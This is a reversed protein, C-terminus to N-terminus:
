DEQEKQKRMADVLETYKNLAKDIDTKSIKIKRTFYADYMALTLGVWFSPSLRTRERIASLQKSLAYNKGSAIAPHTPIERCVDDVFSLVGTSTDVPRDLYSILWLANGVMAKSGGKLASIFRQAQQAVFELDEKNNEIYELLEARGAVVNTATNSQVRGIMASPLPQSLEICNAFKAVSSVISANKTKVFQTVTRSTGNDIDKFYDEPVNYRMDVYISKDAIIVAMCRHQGNMLKGDPTLMFPDAWAINNNWRGGEIDRAMSEAKGRNLRRQNEYNSDLLRKALYPTLTVTKTYQKEKM